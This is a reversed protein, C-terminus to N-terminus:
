DMQQLEAEVIAEGTPAAPREDRAVSRCRMAQIASGRARARPKQKKNNGAAVPVPVPKAGQEPGCQLAVTRWPRDAFAFWTVWRRRHRRRRKGARPRPAACAM